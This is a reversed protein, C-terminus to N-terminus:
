SRNRQGTLATVENERSPKASRFVSDKSVGIAEGILSAIRGHFAQAEDLNNVDIVDMAIQVLLAPGTLESNDFIMTGHALHIAEVLRALSTDYRRRVVHEPIHHGGESVRQAVRDVNLEPSRLTM